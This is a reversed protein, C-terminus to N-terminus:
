SSRTVPRTSSPSSRRPVGLGEVLTVVMVVGTNCLTGYRDFCVTAMGRLPDVASSPVSALGSCNLERFSDSQLPDVPLKVASAKLSAGRGM